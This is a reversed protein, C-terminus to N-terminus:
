IEHGYLYKHVLLWDINLECNIPLNFGKFDCIIVLSLLSTLSNKIFPVLWKIHGKHTDVLVSM